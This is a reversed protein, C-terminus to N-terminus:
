AHRRVCELLCLLLLIDLVSQCGFVITQRHEAFVGIEVSMVSMVAFLDKALKKM